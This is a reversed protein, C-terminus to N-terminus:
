DFSHNEWCYDHISTLTPGYLLSLVSSNISKFQLTASFERSDRSQLSTLGTLGLPFCGQFENSPSISVSFSWYKPWRFRLVSESSLGQHQSLNFAPSSPSSLPYTPQIADSVRHVRTQALEPLQHHVHLGSTSCDVPDCLTPCSQAVSSFHKNTYRRNACFLCPLYMFSLIFAHIVPRRKGERTSFSFSGCGFSFSVSAKEPGISARGRPARGM